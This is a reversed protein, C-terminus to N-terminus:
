IDLADNFTLEADVIKERLTKGEIYETAIFHVGGAEGFEFITLINPHNLASAAYAEREFRLLREKNSAINEPLVKLAVQRHLRADEALYVESMGGAGIKRLIKYNGLSQGSALKDRQNIIVEAVEGVPPSELFSEVKESSALLEELERRLNIDNGCAKDLFQERKLVDLKLADDLLNKIKQWNEPNM